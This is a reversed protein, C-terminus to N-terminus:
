IRGVVDAVLDAEADVLYFHDGPFTRMTFGASTVDAWRAVSEAPVDVDATGVYATVPASLVHLTERRYTGLLRFDARLAPLALERLDPHDLSAVDAQGLRRVEAIVADDGRLHVDRSRARHPPTQGSLLLAGLRHGHRQELRVAVEYAVSAGMSHGFLALPQTLYSGLATTIQDALVDMQEVCDELLRDQRGPYRVALLEVDAPLRDPWTRYTSAGGGAHPLCILRARPRAVPRFRRFWHATDPALATRNDSM